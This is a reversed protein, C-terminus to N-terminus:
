IVRVTTRSGDKRRCRVACQVYTWGNGDRADRLVAHVEGVADDAEVWFRLTMRRTGNPEEVVAHPVHRHGRGRSWLWTWQHAPESDTTAPAPEAPPTSPEDSTLDTFAREAAHWQNVTWERASALLSQGGRWKAPDDSPRDIRAVFDCGLIATVADVNRLRDATHAFMRQPSDSGVHAFMRQPSDSGVLDTGVGLSAHRRCRSQAPRHRPQGFLPVRWFDPRGDRRGKTSGAQVRCGHYRQSLEDLWDRGPTLSAASLMTERM